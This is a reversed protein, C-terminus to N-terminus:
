RDSKRRNQKAVLPDTAAALEEAQREAEEMIREHAKSARQHATDGVLGCQREALEKLCEERGYVIMMDGPLLLLTPAPAGIYAGERIVGLVSIGEDDLGLAQLSRHALWSDAEIEIEAVGYEGQLRLLSAYDRLDLDTLASLTREFFRSMWLELKKSRSVLWLAVVGSLIVLLRLRARQPSEVSVFALILSSVTTVVGMNGLLILTRIIRRRSPHTTITESESTTFGVGTYASLAQFRAVDLSLGTMMLAVSGIRLILFGVTIIILLTVVATM